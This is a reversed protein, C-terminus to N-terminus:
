SRSRTSTRFRAYVGGAARQALASLAKRDDSSLVPSFYLIASAAVIILMKVAVGAILEDPAAFSLLYALAAVAVLLVLKWWPLPTIQYHSFRKREIWILQTLMYALGAIPAAYVGLPEIMFYLAASAVAAAAITARFFEVTRGHIVLGLRSFSTLQDILEGLAILPVLAAAAWFEPASMIKLFEESLISAALSAIVLLLAVGSFVRRYLQPGDPQKVLEFRAPAWSQNFPVWLFSEIMSVIRSALAYLGVAELGVFRALSWRYAFVMYLAAAGAGLMPISFSVLERIVRVSVSLKTHWLTWATMVGGILLGTLLTAWIVGMVRLELVIVFAINLALQVFLKAASAIVFAVPRGLARLYQFPVGLLTNTLLALAFWRVYGAYSADGFLLGAAPGASLALVGAGISKLVIDFTLASSIVTRKAQEGDAAFYFRFVATALEMGFVLNAVDILVQLMAITGYDAPALYTTYIPLMVLSTISQLVVGISYIAAHSITRQVGQM